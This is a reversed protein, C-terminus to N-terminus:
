FCGRGFFFVLRSSHPSSPGKDRRDYLWLRPQRRIHAHQCYLGSAICKWDFVRAAVSIWSPQNSNPFDLFITSRGIPSTVSATRCCHQLLHPNFSPPFTDTCMSTQSDFLKLQVLVCYEEHCKPVVRGSARNPPRRAAARTCNLMNGGLGCPEFFCEAKSLPQTQREDSCFVERRKKSDYIGVWEM